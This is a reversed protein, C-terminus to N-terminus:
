FEYIFLRKRGDNKDNGFSAERTPRKLTFQFYGSVIKTGTKLEKDFKTLLDDMINPKLYVFIHTAKSLDTTFFDQKIIEIENSTNKKSLFVGVKSLILPFTSREIGIFKARPHLKSLYFLVRGDGCGLDYVISDDNINMAKDIEKLVSQSIPIFPSGEKALNVMWMFMLILVALLIIVVLWQLVLFIISM